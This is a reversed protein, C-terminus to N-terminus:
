PQTEANFPSPHRSRSRKTPYVGTTIAILRELARWWGCTDLLPNLFNTLSCYCCNHPPEHHRAHHTRTQVLYLQQLWLAIRPLKRTPMHTWKHVEKGNVMLFLAWILQWHLQESIAALTLIVTAGACLGRASQWWSHQVCECSYRHHNVKNGILWKGVIPTTRTWYTDEMWHRLGSLFDILLLIAFADFLFM